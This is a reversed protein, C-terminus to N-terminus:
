RRRGGGDENLGGCVGLFKVLIVGDGKGEGFCGGGIFGEVLSGM